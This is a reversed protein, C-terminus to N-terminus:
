MMCRIYQRHTKAAQTTVANQQAIKRTSSPLEKAESHMSPLIPGPPLITSWTDVANKTNATRVNKTDTEKKIKLDRELLPQASADDIQEFHCGEYKRIKDTWLITRLAITNGEIKLWRELVTTVQGTVASYSDRMRAADKM